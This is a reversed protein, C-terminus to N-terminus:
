FWFESSVQVRTGPLWSYGILPWSCGIRSHKHFFLEHEKKPPTTWSQMNRQPGSLHPSDQLGGSDLTPHGRKRAWQLTSLTPPLHPAHAVGSWPPSWTQVRTPIALLSKGLPRQLGDEASSGLIIQFDKKSAGLNRCVRSHAPCWSSDGLAWHSFTGGARRQCAGGARLRLEAVEVGQWGTSGRSGRPGWVATRGPGRGSPAAGVVWGQHGPRGPGCPWSAAPQSPFAGVVAVAPVGPAPPGAAVVVQGGQQDGLEHWPQGLRPCLGQSHEFAAPVSPQVPQWAHRQQQGRVQVWGWHSQPHAGHSLPHPCLGPPPM